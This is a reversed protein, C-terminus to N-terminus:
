RYMRIIADTSDDFSETSRGQIADLTNVAVKKGLEVGPQDFSNLGWIVGQTFIKHEYAAIIAGFTEPTLERVALLNSPHQGPYHNPAQESESGFAMLRRHSLCNAVSLEQQAKLKEQVPKAFREASRKLVVLFDATFKDHGQHLHQFFAHQGNPGFGGWLIPGTPYNIAKGDATYQKGNSEMDLQQLYSPLHRFRGDYPLIAINNIAREERNYVGLLAMLMPINETLPASGFHEDMHQAGEQLRRFVQVGCTTAIALGIASWMSFRGGVSQDFTLQHAPPIGYDTMKQPSASVGIVHHELWNSEWSESLGGPQKGSQYYDQVWAKVTDVNAFTDITGFSKSAIIFVTTEPNVIPLVAYLQGGDMSSVFHTEVDHEQVDSAFERLAFSTMLPGLDSGGVGINVIDTIPKGTAGLWNGSRLKRVIKCFRSDNDYVVSHRSRSLVHSVERNESVNKYTGNLLQERLESFNEPLRKDAFAQIEDESIFQYTWDFILGNLTAEKKGMGM